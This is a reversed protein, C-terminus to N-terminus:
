GDVPWQRREPMSLEERYPLRRKDGPRRIIREVVTGDDFRVWGTVVGEPCTVFEAGEPAPHEGLTWLGKTFKLRTGIDNSASAALEEVVSDFHAPVSTKESPVLDNSM